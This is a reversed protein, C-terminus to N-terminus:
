VLDDSACQSGLSLSCMGHAVQPHAVKRFAHVGILDAVRPGAVTARQKEQTTGFKYPGALM